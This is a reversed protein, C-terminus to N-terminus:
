TLEGRLSRWVRLEKITRIVELPVEMIEEKNLNVAPDRDDYFRRFPDLCEANVRTRHASVM